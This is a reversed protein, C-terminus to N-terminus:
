KWEWYAEGNEIIAQAGKIPSKIRIASLEGASRKGWSRSEVLLYASGAGIMRDGPEADQNWPNYPLNKGKGKKMKQRNM